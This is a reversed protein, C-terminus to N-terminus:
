FQWTVIRREMAVFGANLIYGLVALVVLWAYMGVVRFSRQLDIIMYGVGGTGAFMEALVVMILGFGLAVRMGAFIMPLAAPLIIRLIIGSQGHGFTRGCEILVRDVGAVGQITSIVIPFFVALAVITVKMSSGLGLFIMLPPLLAPKPLPRLMEVLPEFLNYIAQWRGMLVGCAVGCFCGVLYGLFLLYLTATLQQILSGSHIIKVLEVAVDTPAPVLAHNVLGREVAAQLIALLSLIVALGILREWGTTRM